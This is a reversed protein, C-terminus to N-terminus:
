KEKRLEDVTHMVEETQKSSAFRLLLTTLESSGTPCVLRMKEGKEDAKTMKMADTIYANLWVTGIATAARILVSKQNKDRVEKVYLMGIGLKSYGNDVFKFVSCKASLVADPEANEVTEVKPPVYEEDDKEEDNKEGNAGETSSTPLKGFSFGGAAPTPLTASFAPTGSKLLSPTVSSGFISGGFPKNEAPKTTTPASSGFAPFTPAATSTSGEAPKSAGFLPVSLAPPKSSEATNPSAGFTSGFSPFVPTLKKASPEDGQKQGFVFPGENKKNGNSHNDQALQVSVSPLPQFPPSSAPSKAKDASKEAEDAKKEETQKNTGFTFPASTDFTKVGMEEPRKGFSFGGPPADAAQNKWFGPTPKPLDVKTPPITPGSYSSEQNGNGGKFIVSESDGLVGGGRIARKRGAGGTPQASSSASTENLVPAAPKPAYETITKDAISGFSVRAKATSTEIVSVNGFSPRSAPQSFVSPTSSKIPNNSPQSDVDLRRKAKIITRGPSPTQMENRQRDGRERGERERNELDKSIVPGEQKKKKKLYMEVLSEAHEVYSKVTPTLDYHSCDDVYAQVVQLFNKNLLSMKDKYQMDRLKLDSAADMHVIKKSASSM